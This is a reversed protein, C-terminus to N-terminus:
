VKIIFYGNIVWLQVDQLDQETKHSSIQFFHTLTKMNQETMLKVTICCDIKTVRM